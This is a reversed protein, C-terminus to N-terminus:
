PESALSAAFRFQRDSASRARFFQQVRVRFNVTAGVPSQDVPSPHARSGAAPSRWVLSACCCSPKGGAREMIPRWDDVTLEEYLVMVGAIMMTVVAILVIKHPLRDTQAAYATLLMPVAILFGALLDRGLEDPELDIDNESISGLPLGVRVAM